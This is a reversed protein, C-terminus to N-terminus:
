SISGDKILKNLHSRITSPQIQIDKLYQKKIEQALFQKKIEGSENKYLHSSRSSLILKAKDLVLKKNKAGHQVKYNSNQESLADNRATKTSMTQLLFSVRSLMTAYNLFHTTTAAGNLDVTNLLDQCQKCNEIVLIAAMIPYDKKFAPNIDKAQIGEPFDETYKMGHEYQAAKLFEHLNNNGTVTEKHAIYEKSNVEINHIKLAAKATQIYQELIKNHDEIGPHMYLGITNEKLHIM